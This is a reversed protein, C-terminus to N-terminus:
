AEYVSLESVKSRAAPDLFSTYLQDVKIYTSAVQAVYPVAAQRSDGSKEAPNTGDEVGATSALLDEDDIEDDEDEVEAAAPPARGPGRREDQRLLSHTISSEQWLM